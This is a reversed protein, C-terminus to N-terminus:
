LSASGPMPVLRDVVYRVIQPESTEPAFRLEWTQAADFGLWKSRPEPADWIKAQWNVVLRVQVREDNQSAVEFENLEHTEDFFRNTVTGYWDRFGAHGKQVGEPFHMELDDDALLALLSEVDDHRDLAVFWDAAWIRLQLETPFSM